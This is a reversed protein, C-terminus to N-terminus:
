YTPWIGPTALEVLNGEPDRFYWSTGGGPWKTEGEIEVGCAALHEKWGDLSDVAFACHLRGTGEHGPITGGPMTMTESTAGKRFLLLVSDGPVNMPRFRKAAAPDQKDDLPKLQLVREYFQQCRDLDDVYLATELLRRIAPM